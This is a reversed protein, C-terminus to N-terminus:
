SAETKKPRSFFGTLKILAKVLPSRANEEARRLESRTLSLEQQLFKVTRRAEDSGELAEKLDNSLINIEERYRREEQKHGEVLKEMKQKLELVESQLEATKNAHNEKIEAVRIKNERDKEKYQQLKIFLAELSAQNKVMVDKLRDKEEEAERARKVWIRCQHLISNAKAELKAVHERYRYIEKKRLSLLLDKEAMQTVLYENRGAEEVRAALAAATEKYVSGVENIQRELVGLKNKWRIRDRHWKGRMRDLSSVFRKMIDEYAVHVLPNYVWVGEGTKEFFKFKGMIDEVAKAPTPRWKSVIEHVQQVSLGGPHVKHAKIILHKLSYQDAEVQWETLGWCGNDLQIFRGDSILGAEGSVLPKIKKKNKSNTGAKLIERISVPQQRRLLYAYFQDNDRGGELNLRWLGNPSYAFCTNQRLCLLVKEEVQDQAYDRLMKRHVHPVIESM